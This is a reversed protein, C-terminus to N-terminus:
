DFILPLIMSVFTWMIGAMMVFAILQIIPYNTLYDFLLTFGVIIIFAIFVVLVMILLQM